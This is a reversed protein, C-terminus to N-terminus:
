RSGAMRPLLGGMNPDVLSLSGYIALWRRSPPSCCPAQLVSTCALAHVAKAPVADIHTVLSVRTCKLCVSVCRARTCPKCIPSTYACVHAQLRAAPAASFSRAHACRGRVADGGSISKLTLSFLAHSRSSRQNMSMQATTRSDNGRALAKMACDLDTVEETRIGEVLLGGKAERLALARQKGLLDNCTDNYVEIYTCEVTCSATRGATEFLDAIARLAIGHKEAAASKWDSMVEDPGFMTHTKGSGTQGYAIVCANVGESVRAVRPQAVLAYVSEQSADRDFVGDLSFELNRALIARPEPAEVVRIESSSLASQTDPRIRAYVGIAAQAM